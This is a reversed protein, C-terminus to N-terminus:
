RERNVYGRKGKMASRERDGVRKRNRWREGKGGVKERKKVKKGKRWRKGKKGGKEREEVEEGNWCGAQWYECCLM